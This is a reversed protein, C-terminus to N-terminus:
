DQQKPLATKASMPEYCRKEAAGAGGAGNTSLPLLSWPFSSGDWAGASATCPARASSLAMMSADVPYDTKSLLRKHVATPDDCDLLM